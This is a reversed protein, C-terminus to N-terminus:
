ISLHEDGRLAALVAIAVRYVYRDVSPLFEDRDLEIKVTQDAGAALWRASFANANGSLIALIDAVPAEFLGELEAVSPLYSDLPEDRRWLYVEQLERDITDAEREYSRVRVGAFRMEERCAEVGIEEQVERMVDVLTEGRGYHGGVTPDLKGPATDKFRGRRQFLLFPGDEGIGYVWVHVARHWDGDRHVAARSKVRGLPEGGASVLDFLEDPNQALLSFDQGARDNKLETPESLM